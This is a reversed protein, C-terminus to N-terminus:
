RRGDRQGSVVFPLVPTILHDRSQQWEMEDFNIEHEMEALEMMNIGLEEIMQQLDPSIENTTPHVFSM